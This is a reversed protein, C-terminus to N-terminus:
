ETVEPEIHESINELNFTFTDYAIIKLTPYEPYIENITPPVEPYVYEELKTM